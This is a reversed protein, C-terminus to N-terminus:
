IFMTMQWFLITLVFNLANIIWRWLSEPLKFLLFNWHWSKLGISSVQGDLSSVACNIWFACILYAVFRCCIKEFECSFEAYTESPFSLGWAIKNVNKRRLYMYVYQRGLKKIDKVNIYCIVFRFRFLFLSVFEDSKKVHLGWGFFLFFVFFLLSLSHLSLLTCTFWKHILNKKLLLVRVRVCITHAYIFIINIGKYKSNHMYLPTFIIKERLVNRIYIM